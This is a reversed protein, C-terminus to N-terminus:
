RFVGTHGLSYRGPQPYVCLGHPGAGVPIRARLEGTTTDFAYVESHSRGSLWLTRGDASVGGMDPSGGDPVVWTARVQGTAFDVVSVSGEDRNSVYLDKSDRSVYTGHAGAGTALFGTVTFSPGDILWLGGATSDAAYFVSGDPSLKVDQPKAGAVDLPLPDGVVAPLDGSVSVKVMEGSFECSAIFYDGAASFDLHNFGACPIPVSGLLAMTAPDRLDLRNLREAVVVAWRGDPTFYLNYPDEVDLPEGPTGTAPDIPTLTNGQTAAVYLTKLDYSPIVHQPEDGVDFQDIVEFTAPDIVSVTDDVSNPVYVRQPFGAVAPSLQGPRTAAYIDVPGPSAAPGSAPASSAAGASSSDDDSCAPLGMLAIGALVVSALRM